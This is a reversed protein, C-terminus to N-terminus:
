KDNTKVPLLTSIRTLQNLLEVAQHKYRTKVVVRQNLLDYIEWDHKINSTGRLEFQLM